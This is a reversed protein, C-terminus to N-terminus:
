RCPTQTILTKLMLTLHAINQIPNNYMLCVGVKKKQLPPPPM